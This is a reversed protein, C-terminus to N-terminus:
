ISLSRKRQQANPTRCPNTHMALEYKLDISWWWVSLNTDIYCSWLDITSNKFIYLVPQKPLNSIILWQDYMKIMTEVCIGNFWKKNMMFSELIDMKMDNRFLICTSPVIHLSPSMESCATRTSMEWMQM